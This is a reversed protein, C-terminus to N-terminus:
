PYQGSWQGYGNGSIPISWSGLDITTTSTGPGFTGGDSHPTSTHIDPDPTSTTTPGYSHHIDVPTTTTPGPNSGGTIPDPHYSFSGGILDASWTTITQTGGNIPNTETSPGTIVWSAAFSIGVFLFLVGLALVVIKKM